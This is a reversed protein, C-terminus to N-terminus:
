FVGLPELKKLPDELRSGNLTIDMCQMDTYDFVGGGGLKALKSVQTLLAVSVMAPFQEESEPLATTLIHWSSGTAAPPIPPGVSRASWSVKTWSTPSKPPPPPGTLTASLLVNLSWATTPAPSQSVTWSNRFYLVFVWVLSSFQLKQLFQPQSHKATEDGILRGNM